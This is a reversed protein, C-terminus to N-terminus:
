SMIQFSTEGRAGTLGETYGETEQKQACLLAPGRTYYRTETPPSLSSFQMVLLSEAELATGEKSSSFLERSHSGQKNVQFAAKGGEVLRLPELGCTLLVPQLASLRVANPRTPSFSQKCLGDLHLFSWVTSDFFLEELCWAMRAPLCLYPYMFIWIFHKCATRLTSKGKRKFFSNRQLIFICYYGFHPLANAHIRRPSGGADPATGKM